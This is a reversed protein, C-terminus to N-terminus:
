IMKELMGIMVPIMLENDKSELEKLIEHLTTDTDNMANELKSFDTSPYLKKLSQLLFNSFVHITHRTDFINHAVSISLKSYEYMLKEDASLASGYKKLQTLLEERNLQPVVSTLPHEFSTAMNEVGYGKNQLNKFIDPKFTSM